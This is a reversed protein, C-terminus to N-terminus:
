PSQATWSGTCAGVDKVTANITGNTISFKGDGNDVLLGMLYIATYGDPSIDLTTDVPKDGARNKIGQSGEVDWPGLGSGAFRGVIKSFPRAKVLDFVVNGTFSRETNTGRNCIMEWTGALRGLTDASPPLDLGDAAGPPTDTCRANAMDCYTGPRCWLKSGGEEFCPTSGPVLCRFGDSAEPNCEESKPCTYRGGDCAIEDPGPVVADVCTAHEEDCVMGPVCWLQGNGFKCQTSGPTLCRFDDQAAPNCEKDKPCTYRGNDCAIEDPGPEVADVCKANEEDCVMGPACWMPGGAGSFKCRTSGPTLCRFDDKAEPNCNKTIPCTYLGGECVQEDPGPVVAKVCQATAVDCAMGPRCWIPAYANPIDCRLSGPAICRFGDKAEPNCDMDNPCTYLGGACAHEEPGPVVADICTAREVDCVTGPRCWIPARANPFDCRQSGPALCRFSDKAEPNCAKDKPCVYQGGECAIEDPGPVAEPMCKELEDSCVEGQHCWYLGRNGECRVADDWPPGDQALAPMAFLACVLALLGRRIM